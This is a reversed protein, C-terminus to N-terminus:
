LYCLQDEARSCRNSKPNGLWRAAPLLGVLAIAVSANRAPRPARAKRLGDGPVIVPSDSRVTALLGATLALRIVAEM